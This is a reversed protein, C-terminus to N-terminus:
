DYAEESDELPLEIESEEVTSVPAILELTEGCEPCPVAVQVTLDDGESHISLVKADTPHLYESELEHEHKHEYNATM